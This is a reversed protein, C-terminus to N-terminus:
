RVLLALENAPFRPLVAVGNDAFPYEQSGVRLFIRPNQDARAKSDSDAQGQVLVAVAGPGPEQAFIRVVYRGDVSELSLVPPESAIESKEGDPGTDAAVRYESADGETVAASRRLPEIARLEMVRGTREGRSIHEGERIREERKADDAPRERVAAEGRTLEAELEIRAAQFLALLERCRACDISHELLDRLTPSDGGSRRPEPLRQHLRPDQLREDEIRLDQSRADRVDIDLALLRLAARELIKESRCKM